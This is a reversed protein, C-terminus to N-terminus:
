RKEQWYVGSRRNEHLRYNVFYIILFNSTLIYYVITHIIRQLVIACGYMVCEREFLSM